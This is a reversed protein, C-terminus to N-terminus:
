KRRRGVSRGTRKGREEGTVNKALVAPAHQDGRKRRLWFGIEMKKKKPDM